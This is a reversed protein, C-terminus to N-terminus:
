CASLRCERPINLTFQKSSSQLKQRRPLVLKKWCTKTTDPYFTQLTPIFLSVYYGAVSLIKVATLIIDSIIDQYINYRIYLILYRSKKNFTPTDSSIKVSTIDRSFKLLKEIIRRHRPPYDLIITNCCCDLRVVELSTNRKM